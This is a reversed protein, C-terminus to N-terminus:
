GYRETSEVPTTQATQAAQATQSPPPLERRMVLADINGPQYYGRRVGIARFGFRTYLRQARVNDKRVELLVEDCGFGAAAALLAALLRSGLGTGEHDRTVGITLVDGTSGAVGLGGYGALRGDPREAVLYRRTPATGRASALENWFMGVSWADDPFLEAELGLVPEIDWWRMERLVVTM